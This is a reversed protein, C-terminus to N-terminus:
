LKGNAPKEVHLRAARRGPLAAGLQVPDGEPATRCRVWAHWTGKVDESVLPIFM